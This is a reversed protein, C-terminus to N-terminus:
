FSIIIAGIVILTIALSKVVVAFKSTEEKIMKPIFFGVALSFVLTFFPQTGSLAVVLSIPGAGVGLMFACIATYGVLGRVFFRGMTAKDILTSKVEKLVGKQTLLFIYLPVSGFFGITNVTLSPLGSMAHKAVTNGIASLVAAVVVLFYGKNFSTRKSEWSSLIAGTVIIGIAVWKYLSLSENLFWIALLANFVPQTFFLASARSVEVTKLATWFVLWMFFYIFGATISWYFSSNIKFTDRILYATIAFFLFYILNLVISYTYVSKIKKSNLFKDFISSAAFLSNATLVYFIWSM